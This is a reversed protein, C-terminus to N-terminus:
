LLIITVTEFGLSCFRFTYALACTHVSRCMFVCVRKNKDPKIKISTYKEDEVSYSINQLGTIGLFTSAM